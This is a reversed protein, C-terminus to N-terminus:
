AIAYRYALVSHETRTDHAVGAAADTMPHYEFGSSDDTADSEAVRDSPLPCLRM